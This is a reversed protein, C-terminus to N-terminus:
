GDPLGHIPSKKGLRRGDAEGGLPRVEIDTSVYVLLRFPVRVDPDFTSVVALYRGPALSTPSTAAGAPTDVYPGSTSVLRGLGSSKGSSSSSPSAAFLSVNLAISRSTKTLQLRM